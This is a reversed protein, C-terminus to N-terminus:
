KKADAAARTLVADRSYRALPVRDATKQILAAEEESLRFTIVRDRVPKATERASQAQKKQVKKRGTRSM